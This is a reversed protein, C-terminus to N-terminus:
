NPLKSNNVLMTVKGMGHQHTLKEILKVITAAVIPRPECTGSFPDRKLAEQPVYIIHHPGDDEAHDFSRSDIEPYRPPIPPAENQSVPVMDPSPISQAVSQEIDADLLMNKQVIHGMERNPGMASETSDQEFTAPTTELPRSCISSGKLSLYGSDKGHSLAPAREDGSTSFSELQTEVKLPIGTTSHPPSPQDLPDQGIQGQTKKASGEAPLLSCTQSHAQERALEISKLTRRTPTSQLAIDLSQHNYSVTDSVHEDDDDDDHDHDHDDEDSSSGSDYTPHELHTCLSREIVPPRGFSSIGSPHRVAEKSHQRDQM